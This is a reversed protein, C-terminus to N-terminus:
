RSCIRQRPRPLPAAARGRQPGRAADHERSSGEGRLAEVWDSVVNWRSSPCAAADCREAAPEPASYGAWRAASRQERSRAHWQRQFRPQLHRDRAGADPGHRARAPSRRNDHLAANAPPAGLTTQQMPRQRRRSVPATSTTPAQRSVSRPAPSPGGRARRRRQARNGAHRRAAHPSTRETALAGGPRSTLPTSPGRVLPGASRRRPVPTAVHFGLM